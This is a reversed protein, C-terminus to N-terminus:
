TVFLTIWNRKKNQVQYNYLVYKKKVLSVSCTTLNYCYKLILILDHLNPLLFAIQSPFYKVSTGHLIINNKELFSYTFNFIVYKVTKVAIGNIAVDLM